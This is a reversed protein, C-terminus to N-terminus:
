ARWRAMMDHLDQIFEAADDPFHHFGIGTIYDNLIEVFRPDDMYVGALKAEADSLPNILDEAIRVLRVAASINREADDPYEKAKEQRWEASDNLRENLYTANMLESSM